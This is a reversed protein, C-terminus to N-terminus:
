GVLVELFAQAVKDYGSDDPHLCDEGGVWDQPGLDGFVDAVEVNYNAAVDRMVDHLGQPVLPPAGELVVNALQVAGPIGGLSCTAIPNDYTGIVIRADPGAAGRLASLAQDLDSRYAAFESQITNLCNQNVGFVCAAVISNTVDNGGIHVTVVEVNNRPNSDSNRAELLEIAAPLQNAILTPTTAGGVALSVLELQKCGQGPKPNDSPSCDFQEQLASHLKPVYGGESPVAAGFGFAWSDGLSLQVPKAASAPAATVAAALLLMSVLVLTRVCRKM